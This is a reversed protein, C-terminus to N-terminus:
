IFSERRALAEREFGAVRKYNESLAVLTVEFLSSMREQVAFERVDLTDNSDIRAALNRLPTM